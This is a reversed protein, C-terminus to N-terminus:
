EQQFPKSIFPKFEDFVTSIQSYSMNKIDSHLWRSNLAYRKRWEKINPSTLEISTLQVTTPPIDLNGIAPSLAPIRYALIEYLELNREIPDASPNLMEETASFVPETRFTLCDTPNAVMANAVEATYLLSPVSNGNPFQSEIAFAWGGDATGFIAHTGKLFEQKQWAYRGFTPEPVLSKILDLPWWGEFQWYLTGQYQPPLIGNEINPALEFVEDGLSYFNYFTTTPSVQSINEFLGAWTMKSQPEADSFLKNWYSAYTQFDYERWDMPVLTNQNAIPDQLSADFAEAPIAANLLLYNDPRLGHQCIAQSVVMNGLSHAMISLASASPLQALTQALVPATRFANFVNRHYHLAPFGVTETVAECGLWTVGYFNMETGSQYLRKYMEAHWARANEASVNFGHLFVVNPVNANHKNSEPIEPVSMSCLNLTTYLSEVPVVKLQLECKWICVNENYRLELVLPKDSTSAGEVLIVGADPNTRMLNMVNLPIQLGGSTVQQTKADILDKDLSKGCSPINESLYAGCHQRTLSTWVVNVADDEQSLHLTLSGSEYAERFAEHENIFEFISAANIHIPFFDEFDCVGDVTSNTADFLVLRGPIDEDSESYDQNRKDDDDNIWITLPTNAAAIGQDDTDILHDRQYDPTLGSDFAPIHLVAKKTGAVNGGRQENMHCHESLLGEENEAWFGDGFVTMAVGPIRTSNYDRYTPEEPSGNVQASWCYWKLSNGDRSKLWTMSIDYSCGKRLKAFLTGVEGWNRMHMKLTRSDEIGASGMGRGQVKLEWAAYDGNVSFEVDVTDKKDLPQADEPNLPDSGQTIEEQDSVGDGDTDAVRPHTNHTSEEWNALGDNDPDADTDSASNPTTPNFGYRREWGDNLADGDSDPHTPNTGLTVEEGDNLGDEDSDSISPNSGLNIEIQNSLGDSDWDGNPAARPDNSGDDLPPLGVQIELADSYGDGDSDALLPNTHHIQVELYDSLGDGDSDELFAHTGSTVEDGDWLGDNDSDKQRPDSQAALTYILVDGSALVNETCHAFEQSSFANPQRVGITALVCNFVSDLRHYQVIIQNSCDYPIVLEIFCTGGKIGAQNRYLGTYQICLCKKDNYLGEGYIVNGLTNKGISLDDWYLAVLLVDKATDFTDLSQNLRISSLDPGDYGEKLLYVLGNTDVIVRSYCQGLLTIPSTLDFSAVEDDHTTTTTNFLLASDSFSVQTIGSIKEITGRFAGDQLGDGDTDPNTPDTQMQYEALTNLGDHDLDVLVEKEGGNIGNVYVSLPNLHHKLEWGDPLGDGDTDFKAPHTFYRTNGVVIGNIEEGDSLGDGDTDFRTPDTSKNGSFCETFDSIGDSDTDALMPDTGTGAIFLLTTSSDISSAQNYSHELTFDRGPLQLGITASAGTVNAGVDKYNTWFLPYAEGEEQSVVIQFSLKSAGTIDNRGSYTRMNLFEVVFYKTKGEQITTHRIQSGFTVNAILDTWYGALVANYSYCKRSALAHNSGNTQVKENANINALIIRGNVDIYCSDCAYNDVRTVFGFGTLTSLFNDSAINSGNPYLETWSDSTFWKAKNEQRVIITSLEYIDPLRDSDADAKLPHAGFQIEEGDLLGDADSDAVTTDLDYIFIKDRDSLGSGSSDYQTPDTKYLHKELLDPLRDGDTDTQVDILRFFKPAEDKNEPLPVRVCDVDNHVTLKGWYDWPDQSLTRATLLGLEVKSQNYFTLRADNSKVNIATFRLPPLSELAQEQRLRNREEELQALEELKATYAFLQDEPVFTVSFGFQERGRTEFWETVCEEDEFELWHPLQNDKTFWQLTWARPNFFQSVPIQRCRSTGFYTEFTREGTESVCEQVRATWTPIGHFDIAPVANTMATFPECLPEITSSVYFLAGKPMPPYHQVIPGLGEGEDTGDYWARVRSDWSYWAYDLYKLIDDTYSTIASLAADSTTADGVSGEDGSEGEEGEEPYDEPLIPMPPMDSAFLCPSAVGFLGILLLTRYCNIIDMAMETEVSLNYRLDQAM